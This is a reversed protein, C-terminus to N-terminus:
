HKKKEEKKGNSKLSEMLEDLDRYVCTEDKLRALGDTDLEVVYWKASFQFEYTRQFVGFEYHCNRPM